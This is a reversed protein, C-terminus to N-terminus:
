QSELKDKEDQYPTEQKTKIEWARKVEPLLWQEWNTSCQSLNFVNSTCMSFLAGVMSFFRVIENWM